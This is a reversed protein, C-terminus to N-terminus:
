SIRRRGERVVTNMTCGGLSRRASKKPMLLEAIPRGIRGRRFERNIVRDKVAKKKFNRFETQSMNEPRTVTMLWDAVARHEGSYTGDLGTWAEM